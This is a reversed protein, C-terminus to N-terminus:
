IRNLSYGIYDEISEICGANKLIDSSNSSTVGIVKIDANNAAQVGELSDEFILCNAKNINFNNVTKNFMEPNPKGYNVEDGSIISNFQDYIGLEMLTLDVNLKIANSALGVLINKSKLEELFEIFGYIPFINGKYIERFIVEKDDSMKKLEELSYIDGYVAKMLDLTGGGKYKKLKESFDEIKNEEFFIRWAEHHYPLSDVITGDMDFIVGKIM